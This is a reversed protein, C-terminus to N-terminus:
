AEADSLHHHIVSRLHAPRVPKQLLEYGSEKAMKIQEKSTDGTILIGPISAGFQKRLSDIAEIGTKDNCLRLDSLIVDPTLWKESLATSADALSEAIVVECGWKSLLRQMADLIDREDDIVLISRGKLDWSHTHATSQRNVVLETRGRPITISFVSGKGPQSRLELPHKLLRCLRQVLALGLGLGEARDRHSNHLQQFEVFVEEQSEQPIGIGTDWVQLLVRDGRARASLLVGGTKTYRIANGILNRLIRELLLRDSVIVQFGAHVRLTLNKERAAPAFEESLTKYLEALDFHTVEPIVVKADLRSVDLLADFLKRLAHLSLDIRPFINAREGESKSEKLVDIFLSLTHLPQRLDHSAAALFKSKALTAQQAEETKEQLAESFALTQHRLRIESRMSRRLEKTLSVTALLYFLLLIALGTYAVSGEMLLRLVMASFTPVAFLYFSPYWYAGSIVSSINLIAILTMIFVQHEASGNVFFLFAASSWVMGSFLSGLSFRRGWQNAEKFHVDKRLFAVAVSYRILISVLVLVGWGTLLAHDIQSWMVAIVTLPLLLIKYSAAPIRRFISDLAELTIREELEHTDLDMM